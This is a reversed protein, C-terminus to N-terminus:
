RVAGVRERVPPAKSLWDKKWLVFYVAALGVYTWVWLWPTWWPIGDIRYESIPWLFRTAYYSYSHMPIDILIHLLWGLLELVLRRALLSTIAFAILFIVLSHAAPYLPLGLRVRPVHFGGGAHPQLSGTAWLVLGLVVSPGFALVDPFIGWWVMWPVRVRRHTSKNITIGAAATWLSHAVFEM